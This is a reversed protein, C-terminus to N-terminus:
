NGRAHPRKNLAFKYDTVFRQLEEPISTLVQLKRTLDDKTEWDKAKMLEGFWRIRLARVALMFVGQENLLDNAEDRLTRKAETDKARADVETPDSM